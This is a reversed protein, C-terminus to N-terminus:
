HPRLRLRPRPEAADQVLRPMSVSDQGQALSALRRLGEERTILAKSQSVTPYAVTLDGRQVLNRITQASLGVLGSIKRNLVGM